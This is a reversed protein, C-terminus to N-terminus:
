TLSGSSHSATTTSLANTNNAAAIAIAIAIAVALTFSPGVRFDHKILCVCRCCLLLQRRSCMHTEAIEVSGEVLCRRLLGIVVSWAVVARAGTVLDLLFLLLHLHLHLQSGLHSRICFM